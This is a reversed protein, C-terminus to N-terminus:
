IRSVLRCQALGFDILRVYGKNDIMVNEPKLDRFLIGKSHVYDLAITISAIYFLTMGLPLPKSNKDYHYIARFLDGNQLPDMLLGCLNATSFRGRVKCILPHDLSRLIQNEEIFHHLQREEIIRAKSSVKLAFPTGGCEVALVHGFSGRGYIYKYKIENARLEKIDMLPIRYLSYDKFLEDESSRTDSPITGSSSYNEDASIKLLGISENRLLMNKQQVIPPLISKTEAGSKNSSQALNKGGLAPFSIVANVTVSKKLTTNKSEDSSDRMIPQYTNRAKLQPNVTQLTKVFSSVAGHVDVENDNDLKTAPSTGLSATSDTREPPM